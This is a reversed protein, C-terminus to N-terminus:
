LNIGHTQLYISDSRLWEQNLLSICENIKILLEYNKTDECINQIENLLNILHNCLRVFNGEFLYNEDGQSLPYIFTRLYEDILWVYDFNFKNILNPAKKDYISILKDIEEIWKINNNNKNQLKFINIDIPDNIHDDCTLTSLLTIINRSDLQSFFPQTIIDIIPIPNNDMILSGIIGRNTLQIIHDKEILNDVPLINNNITIFDHIVLEKLIKNIDMYIKKELIKLASLEIDYEIKDRLKIMFNQDSELLKIRSNQEKNLKIFPNRYQTLTEYYNIKEYEEETINIKDLKEKIKEVIKKQSIIQLNNAEFLMSKEINNILSNINSENTELSSLTIRLMRLILLEDIKLKSIIKQGSGLMMNSLETSSINNKFLQPLFIIYGKTDINRRGARGAMQIFEHSYLLRNGSETSYKSLDCFVVTKTPMNLGVAFTETAFLVKILKKEYLIEVIEKLIPILGSHHIGVGKKALSLVIHYQEINNLYTLNLQRVKSNIFNEVEYTEEPRNFNINISHALEACKKKNLVFFLLPFMNEEYNEDNFKKLMDNIICAPYFRGNMNKLQYEHFKMIKQYTIDDFKKQITNSIIILENFKLANKKDKPLKKIFGQTMGYYINFSLPVVRHSTSIIRTTKETVNDIWKGFKSPDSLTASLMILQIHKPINMISQEWINGRDIDNIYHVEDFIICGINSFDIDLPNLNHEKLIDLETLEIQETSNIKNLKIFYKLLQNLLIETTMILCDAQPAFKIDGTLIGISINFPSFKENFDYFKQNSLSKIPSTYIVKKNDLKVTKYIGYEAILSKGSGTHATILLNNNTNTTTDTNTLNHKFDDIIKFADLQFKDLNTYKSLFNLEIPQINITNIM